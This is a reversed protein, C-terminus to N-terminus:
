VGSRSGEKRVLFASRERTAAFSFALFIDDRDASRVFEERARVGKQNLTKVNEYYCLWRKEGLFIQVCFATIGEREKTIKQIPHRANKTFIGANTQLGNFNRSSKKYFYRFPPLKIAGVAIERRPKAQNWSNGEPDPHNGSLIAFQPIDEPELDM